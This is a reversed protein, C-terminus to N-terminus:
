INNDAYDYICETIIEGDITVFGVKGNEVKLRIGNDKIKYKNFIEEKTYIFNDVIEGYKNITGWKEELKVKSIGKLFKSVYQYKCPIIEKGNKDIMGWNSHRRVVAFGRDFRDVSTYIGIKSYKYKLDWEMKSSYEEIPIVINEEKDIAIQQNDETIVIAVGERFSSVLKYKCSIVERGKENIYGCKDNKKVGAMGERFCYLKEDGSNFKYLLPRYLDSELFIKVDDFLEDLVKKICNEDGYFYLQEKIEELTCGYENRMIVDYVDEKFQDM